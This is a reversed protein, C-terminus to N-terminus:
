ALKIRNIFIDLIYALIIPNKGSHMEINFDILKFYNNPIGNSPVHWCGGNFCLDGGAIAQMEEITTIDRM